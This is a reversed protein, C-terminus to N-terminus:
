WPLREGRFNWFGGSSELSLEDIVKILGRVSDKPSTTGRHNTMDTQVYGPHLLAVSIGREKLDHAVSVGAMNLAAKSMRYGYRGGSTNDALSGMQSTVMAVKSGESLRDLLAELIRLPGLANVEFQESLTQYDISGLSEDRWIGANLILLDVLAVEALNGPSRVDIGELVSVGLQNLEASSQRCLGTVQHGLADFQRVFELGIGRNAGSIVVNKM